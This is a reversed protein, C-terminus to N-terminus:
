KSFVFEFGCFNCFVILGVGQDVVIGQTDLLIKVIELNDFGAASFLLSYAGEPCTTPITENIVASLDGLNRLGEVDGKIICGHVQEKTAM